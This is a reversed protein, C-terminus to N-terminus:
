REAEVDDALGRLTRWRETAVYAAPVLVLTVLMSLFLGGCVAIGLPRWINSGEGTAIALPLMGGMTTLSTMLVPRLRRAGGLTVAEELSMGQRRMENIYDILV